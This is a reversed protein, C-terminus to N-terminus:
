RVTVYGFAVLSLWIIAAVALLVVIKGLLTLGLRELLVIFLVAITPVVLFPMAFAFALVVIAQVVEILKLPDTRSRLWMVQEPLNSAGGRESEAL